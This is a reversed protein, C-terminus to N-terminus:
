VEFENVVIDPDLVNALAGRPGWLYPFIIGM